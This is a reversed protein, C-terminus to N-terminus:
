IHTNTRTNVLTVSQLYDNATIPTQTYHLSPPSPPVPRSSFLLKHWLLVLLIPALSFTSPSRSATPSDLAHRYFHKSYTNIPHHHHGPPLPPTLTPLSPPLHPSAPFLFSSLLPADPPPFPSLPSLPPFWSHTLTFALLHLYVFLSLSSSHLCILLYIAISLYVPVCIFLCVSITRALLSLYTPLSIHTFFVTSKFSLRSLVSLRPLSILNASHEPPPRCPM